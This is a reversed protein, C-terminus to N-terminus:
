PVVLTDVPCHYAMRLGETGFPEFSEGSNAEQRGLVVLTPQYRAIETVLCGLPNGHVVHQHIHAESAAATIVDGVIRHAAAETAVVSEGISANNVGSARAREIYPVEYAHMVHCDGSGILSSAWLVVRRSIDCTDHVAAISVRYPKPDWGRVLLLPYETHLLLKLTTGGFSEPSVRPQHEGRAGAVILSPQYESATRGIVRSARGLHIEGRAHVGFESQLRAVEDRIANQAHATVSDHDEQRTCTWRSFLSWDPTAHVLYLDAQYQSALQAARNAALRSAPSFDTAVLIRNLFAM